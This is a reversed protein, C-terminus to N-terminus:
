CVACACLACRVRCSWPAPADALTPQPINREKRRKKKEEEKRKQLFSAFSFRKRFLQKERGNSNEGAYQVFRATGM